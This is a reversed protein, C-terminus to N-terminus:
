YRSYISSNSRMLISWDQSYRHSKRVVFLIFQSGSLIHLVAVIPIYINGLIFVSNCTNIYLQKLWLFSFLHKAVCVIQAQQLGCDIFLYMRFGFLVGFSIVGRRGSRGTLGRSECESRHNGAVSSDCIIQEPFTRSFSLDHLVRKDSSTTDAYVVCVYVRATFEDKRQM